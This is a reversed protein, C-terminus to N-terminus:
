GPIQGLNRDCSVIRKRDKTEDCHLGYSFVELRSVIDFTGFSESGSFLYFQLAELKFRIKWM